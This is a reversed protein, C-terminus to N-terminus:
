LAEPQIVACSVKNGLYDHVVLVRGVNSSMPFGTTVKATGIPFGCYTVSAWPDSNLVEKNYYHAGPEECCMGEHIHIGCSNKTGKKPGLMCMKPLNWLMWDLVVYADAGSGSGKVNANGTIKEQGNYDPIPVINPVILSPNELIGCSVRGGASNHVIVTHGRIAAGSLGTFVKVGKVTVDGSKGATYVVHKWPDQAYDATNWYHMKADTFCDTGEHIHIGCSNAATTPNGSCAPDVGKLAIDLTQHGYGTDITGSGTVKLPGQYNFYPVFQTVKLSSWVAAAHDGAHDDSDELQERGATLFSAQQTTHQLLSSLEPDAECLPGACVDGKAQGAVLVPILAALVPILRAMAM